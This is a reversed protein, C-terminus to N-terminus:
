KVGALLEYALGPGFGLPTSDNNWFGFTKSSWM